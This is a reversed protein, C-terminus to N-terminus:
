GRRWMREGDSCWAGHNKAAKVCPGFGGAKHGCVGSVFDRAQQRIQERDLPVVRVRTPKSKKKVPKKGALVAELQAALRAREAASKRRHDHDLRSNRPHPPRQNSLRDSCEGCREGGNYDLPWGCPCRPRFDAYELLMLRRELRAAESSTM